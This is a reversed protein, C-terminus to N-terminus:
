PQGALAFRIADLLDRRTSRSYEIDFWIIKGQVDLLYTRPLKETAVKRFAEGQADLLHTLEGSHTEEIVKQVSEVPDRENVAVVKVGYRSFQKAVDPGLDVLEQRAYPHDATWFAVVTLKEGRLSTLSKPAGALDPLTFDPMGDGVRVLCTNRHGETMLVKPMAAPPTVKPLAVQLEVPAQPQAPQSRPQRPRRARDALSLEESEDKDPKAPSDAAPTAPSPAGDATKDDSPKGAPANANPKAPPPAPKECGLMLLGVVLMVAGSLRIAIRNM